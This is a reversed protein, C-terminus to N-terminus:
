VLKKILKLKHKRTLGDLMMTILTCTMGLYDVGLAKGSISDYRESVGNKIANAITRDCIDAALDHHGYRAFGGATLYNTPPWVDGRWFRDSEWRKDMRDVTPVPLPTNWRPSRMLKAMRDAMKKTPVGAELAMWSGITAVPIKKLTDRHVSLFIGEKDDWMYKRMAKISKDIKVQRRAAMEKDGMIKALRVLCQEGLILFATNGTICIDGYWPGEKQMKRKEWGREFINGRWPNEKESKRTPHNTMKLGDMNCEHDFTECRAHKASGDYSGVAILGINTVDRERWYWQHFKEVHKLSQRLLEKDGNRNYVRELGWTIIPIQSIAPYRLWRDDTHKPDMFCPLMDHAYEPTKANWRVQFDWYNQFVERIVQKQGPLVSLLDVVFMTDWVWQAQYGGGPAIWSHKLHGKPPLVKDIICKRYIGETLKLVAPDDSAFMSMFNDATLEAANSRPLYGSAILGLTGCGATRLFERREM